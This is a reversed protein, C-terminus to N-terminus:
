KFLVDLSGTNFKFNDGILIDRPTVLPAHMLMNGSGYEVSDVLCVGSVFGWGYLATPFTILFTNATNGSGAVSPPADWATDGSTAPDYLNYRVYGSQNTGDGSAIENITGGTQSDSPVDSTLAISVNSPKSFTTGRLVHDLLGSELYDSLSAM